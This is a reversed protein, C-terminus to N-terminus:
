LEMAADFATRIANYLNGGKQNRCDGIIFTNASIDKFRNVEEEDTKVGFALVVNDCSILEDNGFEDKIIAGDEIM